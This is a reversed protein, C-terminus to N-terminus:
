AASAHVSVLAMACFSRHPRFLYSFAGMSFFVPDYQLGLTQQAVEFARIRIGEHEPAHAERTGDYLLVNHLQVVVEECERQRRQLRSPVFIPSSGRPVKACLRFLLAPREHVLDGLVNLANVSRPVASSFRDARPHSTFALARLAHRRPMVFPGHSFVPILPIAAVSTCLPNRERAM